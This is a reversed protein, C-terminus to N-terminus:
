HDSYQELADPNLLKASWFPMEMLAKSYYVPFGFQPEGCVM